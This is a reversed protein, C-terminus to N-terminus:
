ETTDQTKDIQSIGYFAAISPSWRVPSREYFQVYRLVFSLCYFFEEVCFSRCGMGEYSTTAASSQVLKREVVSISHRRDKRKGGRGEGSRGWGIRRERWGQPAGFARYYVVSMFFGLVWGACLVWVAQWWCPSSLHRDLDRRRNNATLSSSKGGMIIIHQRNQTCLNTYGRATNRDRFSVFSDINM